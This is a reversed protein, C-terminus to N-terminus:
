HVTGVPVDTCDPVSQRLNQMGLIEFQQNDADRKIKLVSESLNIASLFALFLRKETLFAAFFTHKESMKNLFILYRYRKITFVIGM